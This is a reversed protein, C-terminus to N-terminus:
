LVNSLIVYIIIGVTAVFLIYSCVRTPWPGQIISDIIEHWRKNNKNVASSTTPEENDDLRKNAILTVLVFLGGAIVFIFLLYNTENIPSSVLLSNQTNISSHITTPENIQSKNNLLIETGKHLGILTIASASAIVARLVDTGKKTIFFKAFDVMAVVLLTLLIIPFILDMSQTSIDKVIGSFSNQM